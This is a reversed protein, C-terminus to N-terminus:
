RWAATLMSWSWRLSTTQQVFIMRGDPTDCLTVSTTQSLVFVPRSGYLHTCGSQAQREGGLTFYFSYWNFVAPFEDQSLFSNSQKFTPNPWLHRIQHESMLWSGPYQLAQRTLHSALFTSGSYILVLLLVLSTLGLWGKRNRTLEM